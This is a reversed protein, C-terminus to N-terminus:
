KASVIKKKQNTVWNVIIKIVESKLPILGQEINRLSAVSIGMDNAAAIQSMGSQKRTDKLIQSIKQM